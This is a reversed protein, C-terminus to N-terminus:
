GMLATLKKPLFAGSLGKLIQLTDGKKIPITYYVNSFVIPLGALPQSEGPGSAEGQEEEANNMEGDAKCM